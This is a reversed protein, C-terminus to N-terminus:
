DTKRKYEGEVMKKVEDGEIGKFDSVVFTEKGLEIKFTFKDGKTPGGQGEPTDM